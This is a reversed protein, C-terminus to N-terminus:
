YIALSKRYPSLALKSMDLNGGVEPFFRHGSCVKLPVCHTAGTFIRAVFAAHTGLRKMAQNSHHTREGGKLKRSHDDMPPMQFRNWDRIVEGLHLLSLRRMGTPKTHCDLTKSLKVKM